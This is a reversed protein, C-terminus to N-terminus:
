ECMSACGEFGECQVHAAGVHTAEVEVFVLGDRVPGNRQEETVDLRTRPCYTYHPLTYHTHNTPLSQTPKLMNLLLRATLIM